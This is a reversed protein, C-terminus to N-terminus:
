FPIDEPNIEEEPYKMDEEQPYQEQSGDETQVAADGASIADSGAAIRERFLKDQEEIATHIEVIQTNIKEQQTDSLAAGRQLSLAYYDGNQGEEKLPVLETFFTHLPEEDNFTQLYDYFKTVGEKKYKKSLSEDQTNLSAGKIVIRVIEKKAPYFAYVMQQTRLEPHRARVQDATGKDQPNSGYLLVFDSKNNHENTAMGGKKKFVSLKRRIKMFIVSLNEGLDEKPYKDQDDKKADKDRYLFKGENGNFTIESVRFKAGYNKAGTMRAIDANSNM